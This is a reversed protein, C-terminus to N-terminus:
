LPDFLIFFKNKGENFDHMVDNPLSSSAHFANLINFPSDTKLNYCNEGVGEDDGCDGSTEDMDYEDELEMPEDVNELFPEDVVDFLHNSFDQIAINETEPLVMKQGLRNIIKDYEERTWYQHSGLHSCDHIKNELDTSHFHCIRCVYGRSFCTSFGGVAHSELNDGLHLSFGIKVIRPYPKNVKIGVELDKMDRFFTKVLRNHITCPTEM